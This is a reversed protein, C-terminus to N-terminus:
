NIDFLTSSFSLIRVSNLSPDSCIIRVKCRYPSLTKDYEIDMDPAFLACKPTNITKEINIKFSNFSINTNVNNEFVKKYVPNHQLITYFMM